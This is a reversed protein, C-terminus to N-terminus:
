PTPVCEPTLEQSWPIEPGTHCKQFEGFDYMDVDGDNNRDYCTCRPDSPMPVDYGSYCQQFFGFDTQDVDGDLDADPFPIPCCTVEQCTTGEGRYTGECVTDMVDSCSLDPMCCAGVPGMPGVIAVWGEPVGNHEGTGVIVTGDDSIDKAETLIWDSLDLGYDNELVQKLDRAGNYPDWIMAISKTEGFHCTGGGDDIIRQARGVVVSGDLSVALAESRGEHGPVYGLLKSNPYAPDACLQLPDKEANPDEPDQDNVDFLYAQVNLWCFSNYTGSGVIYRANSSVGYAYSASDNTPSEDLFGLFSNISTQSSWSFAGPRAGGFPYSTNGYGVARTRAIQQEDMWFGLDYADSIDENPPVYGLDLSDIEGTHWRFAHDPNVGRSSRGVLVAKGDARIRIRRGISTGTSPDTPALFPIVTFGGGNSIYYFAQNNGYTNRGVGTVHITGFSDTTVDQASSTSWGSPRGIGVLTQTAIDFLVAEADGASNVSEGAVVTGDDSVGYAASSVDGPLVGIGTFTGTQGLTAPPVCAWLFWAALHM